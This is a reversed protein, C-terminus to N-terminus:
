DVLRQKDISEFYETTHGCSPCFPIGDVPDSVWQVACDPCEGEPAPTDEDEGYPFGQTFPGNGIHRLGPLAENAWEAQAHRQEERQEDYMISWVRHHARTDLGATACANKFNSYDIDESLKMMCVTWKSPTMVIRWRYDAQPTEIIKAQGLEDPLATKLRELAEKTRARVQIHGLKVTSLTASYFGHKTFIWM